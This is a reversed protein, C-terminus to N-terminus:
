LIRDNKPTFYNYVREKLSQLIIDKTKFQLAKSVQSKYQKSKIIMNEHDYKKENILNWIARYTENVIRISKDHLALRIEKCIKIIEDIEKFKIRLYDKDKKISFNGERFKKWAGESTSSLQVIFHIPLSCTKMIEEVFAYDPHDNKYFKLYNPLMWPTQTQCLPIDSEKATKSIIYYIPINLIEAVKLRHQGDIINLDEDCIIPHCDLLNKKQVSELLSKYNIERNKNLFNFQRYNQTSHIIVM